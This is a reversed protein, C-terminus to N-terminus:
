IVYRHGLAGDGDVHDLLNPQSAVRPSTIVARYTGDAIRRMLTSARSSRRGSAHGSTACTGSAIGRHPNAPTAIDLHLCFIGDFFEFPSRLTSPRWADRRCAVFGRGEIQETSDPHEDFRALISALTGPALLAYRGDFDGHTAM